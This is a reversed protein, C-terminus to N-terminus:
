HVVVVAIVAGASVLLALVALVITTMREGSMAAGTTLNRAAKLDDIQAQLNRDAADVADRQPFQRERDNMASRWENASSRWREANVEAVNVAKEASSLAAAIAAADASRLAEFYEKLALITWEPDESL